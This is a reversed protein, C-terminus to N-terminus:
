LVRSILVGDHVAVTTSGGHVGREFWGRLAAAKM